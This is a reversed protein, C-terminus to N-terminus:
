RAAVGELEAMANQVAQFINPDYRQEEKFKKAAEFAAKEELEFSVVKTEGSEKKWSLTIPFRGEVLSSVTVQPVGSLASLNVHLDHLVALAV